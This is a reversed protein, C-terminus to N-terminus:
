KPTFNWPDPPAHHPPPSLPGRRVSTKPWHIKQRKWNPVRCWHCIASNRVNATYGLPVAAGTHIPSVSQGFVDKISRQSRHRTRAKARGPARSCCVKEMARNPVLLVRVIAHRRSDVPEGVASGIHENVLLAQMEGDFLAFVAQKVSGFELRSFFQAISEISKWTLPSMLLSSTSVM